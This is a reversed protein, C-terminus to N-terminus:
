LGSHVLLVCSRLDWVNLTVRWTLNSTKFTYWEKLERQQKTLITSFLNSMYLKDDDDYKTILWENDTYCWMNWLYFEHPFPPPVEGFLVWPPLPPASETHLTWWVIFSIPGSPDVTKYFHPDFCDIILFLTLLYQNSERQKTLIKSFSQEYIFNIM